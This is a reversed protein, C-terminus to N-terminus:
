TKTLGKIRRIIATHSCHFKKATNSYDKFEGSRIALVAQSVLALKDARGM